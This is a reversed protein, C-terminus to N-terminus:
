NQPTGKSKARATRTLDKFLLATLMREDARLSMLGSLRLSVIPKRTNHENWM